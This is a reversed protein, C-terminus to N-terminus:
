EVYIWESGWTDIMYKFDELDHPKISARGDEYQAHMLEHVLLRRLGEESIEINQVNPEYIVIVFDYDSFFKERPSVKFCTGYVMQEGNHKPKDSFLFGIHADRLPKFMEDTQILDYGLRDLLADRRFQEM